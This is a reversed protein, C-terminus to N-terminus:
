IGDPTAVWAQPDDTVFASVTATPSTGGQTFTLRMHRENEHPFPIIQTRQTQPVAPGTYLATPSSFSSNDDTQVVVQLTPSTGGSAQIVVVIYLPRGLATFDRDAGFDLTDTSATGSAASLAQSDCFRLSKDITM